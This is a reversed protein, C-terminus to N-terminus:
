QQVPIPTNRPIIPEMTGGAAAIGITLPVVDLLLAPLARPDPSPPASLVHAQIAAGAAVATLPDIDHRPRRGFYQEVVARVLPSMTSGGVLLIEHVQNPTRQADAFARDLVALSRGVLERWVWNAQWRNTAHAVDLSGDSRHAVNHVAITTETAESLNRK